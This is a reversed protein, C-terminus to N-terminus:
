VGVQLALNLNNSYYHSLVPDLQQAAARVEVITMAGSHASQAILLHAREHLLRVLTEGPTESHKRRIERHLHMPAIGMM